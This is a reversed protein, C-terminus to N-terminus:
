QTLQRRNQNESDPSEESHGIKHGGLRSMAAFMSDESPHVYRSSIGIQSHGAIRALTWVDCGSEGLRTLFTHRLSYLVFPRVPKLSNKAAERAILEFAKTHHKRLSSVEVHGSRTKAPWIWGETPKGAREWRSELIARVRPTMPLVRRAAATKGHTVFLTGHRGNVWTVAEWCLRFCEEPRMGTDALVAAISALPEPSAALYRAEEEPSVVRERHREGPLMKIQPAADL